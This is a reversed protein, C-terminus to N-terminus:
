EKANHESDNRNRTRQEKITKTSHCSICLTQLNAPNLLDGGDEIAKIHDTHAGAKTHGNALCIQCLPHLRRQQTSLIRWAKSNYFTLNDNQKQKPKQIWSPRHTKPLNAMVTTIHLDGM